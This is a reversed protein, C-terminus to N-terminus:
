QGAGGCRLIEDAGALWSSPAFIGVVLTVLPGGCDFRLAVLPTVISTREPPV